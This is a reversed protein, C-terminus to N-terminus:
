VGLILAAMEELAKIDAEAVQDLGRMWNRAKEVVLGWASKEGALKSEFMKIALVTAWLSKRTGESLSRNGPVFAKLMEELDVLSVDLLTALTPAFPFSGESAQLTILVKAKKSLPQAGTESSLRAAPPASLPSYTIAVDPVSSQDAYKKDVLQLGQFPVFDVAYVTRM